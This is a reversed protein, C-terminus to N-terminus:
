RAMGRRRIARTDRPRPEPPRGSVTKRRPTVHPAAPEPDPQIIQALDDHYPAADTTKASPMEEGAARDADTAIVASKLHALAELRRRNEDEAMVDEAQRMLRAVDEAEDPTVMRTASAGPRVPAPEDDPHIRVIRSSVRRAKGGVRPATAPPTDEIDEADVVALSTESDMVEAALPTGSQGSWAPDPSLDAADDAESAAPDADAFGVPAEDRPESVMGLDIEPDELTQSAVEAAEALTELAPVPENRFASAVAEPLMQDADSLEESADMEPLLDDAVIYPADVDVESLDAVTCADAHDPGAIDAFINGVPEEAEVAAEATAEPDQLLAGIRSAASGETEAAASDPLPSEAIPAPDEVAERFANLADEPRAEEVPQSIAERIRALKAVVGSPMTDQVSPEVVPPAPPPATDRAPARESRARIPARDETAALDGPRLVMGADRSKTTVLRAVEREAVRHLMAADPQPPVAGFYRDDASLDRFYEAIAKMTNFPDDFGELTCSFTGYSVTLIKSESTM